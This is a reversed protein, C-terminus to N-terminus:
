PTVTLPSLMGLMHHGDIVCGIVYDGPALDLEVDNYRGASLAHVGVLATSADLAEPLGPQHAAFAAKVDEITKGPRLRAIFALHTARGRNEVRWLAPGSPVERPGELSFDHLGLAHRAEPADAGRGGSRVLLPVIYGDRLIPPGEDAVVDAYSVYTGPEVVASVWKTAGPPVFVPGGYYGDFMALAQATDGRDLGHMVRVARVGAEPTIGPRLRLLESSLMVDSDNRLGLRVYGPGSSVPATLRSPTATALIAEPADGSRPALGVAAISLIVM